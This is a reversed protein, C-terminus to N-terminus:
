EKLELFELKEPINKCKSTEKKKDKKIIILIKNNISMIKCFDFSTKM